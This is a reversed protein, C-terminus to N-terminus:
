ASGRPRSRGFDGDILPSLVAGLLLVVLGLLGLAVGLAALVTLLLEM